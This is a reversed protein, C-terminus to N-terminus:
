NPDAGGCPWDLGLDSGRRGLDMMLRSIIQDDPVGPYAAILPDVDGTAFVLMTETAGDPCDVEYDLLLAHGADPPAEALAPCDGFVSELSVVLGEKWRDGRLTAVCPFEACDTRVLDLGTDCEDFLRRMRDPWLDPGDRDIDGPWHREIRPSEDRAERLRRSLDDLADTDLKRAPRRRAGPPTDPLAGPPVDASGEGPAVALPAVVEDTSSLGVRWGAWFCAGGLVLACALLLWTQRDPVAM